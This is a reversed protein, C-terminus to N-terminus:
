VRPWLVDCDFSQAVDPQDFFYEELLPAIKRSWVRNLRDRTMLPAMFFSHGITHHRDLRAALQANLEEFGKLLNPVENAYRRYYAELIDTRPPCEIIDFRRRLAIDISRISRDATNMTGVFRVSEPLEFQRTFRLNVKEKRYEFLFMLEGLVRPLNARNIEDILLVHPGPGRIERIMELLVGPTPEFTVAGSNLTPRLGEIFDEYAYSPHFQVFRLLQGPGQTLFEAVRKAVWTKSTGPPGALILQPSSDRIADCLEELEARPWLTEAELWELSRTRQYPPPEADSLRRAEQRYAADLFPALKRLHDLLVDGLAPGRELAEAIPMYASIAAGAAASGTAQGLWADIDRLEAGHERWRQRYRFPSGEVIHDLDEIFDEPLSGLRQQAAEFERELRHVLEKDRSQSVVGGACFGYEVQDPAVLVFLQFAYSKDGADQPFVCGWYDRPARGNPLLHSVFPQVPTELPLEDALRRALLGVKARLRSLLLRDPEGVSKWSNGANRALADIEERLVLAAGAASDGLTTDGSGTEEDADSRERWLPEVSPAYFDFGEGYTPELKRRIQLLQEDVDETGPSALDRWHSVIARKHDKNVTSEFVDPFVLHLLGERLPGSRPIEFSNLFAKFAFPEALYRSREADPLSKWSRVTAVFLHMSAYRGTHFGVGPNVLGTSLVGELLVPLVVVASESTFSLVRRLLARKAKEGTHNDLLFMVFLMEAALQATDGPAGRLQGELKTEFDVGKREDPRLVFRQYLDDAPSEAWVQHQPAFLSGNTRLAQDVFLDAVSYIETARQTRRRAM